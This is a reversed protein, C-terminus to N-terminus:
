EHGSYLELAEKYAFRKGNLYGIHYDWSVNYESGEHDYTNLILDVVHISELIKKEFEDFTKLKEDSNESSNAIFSASISLCLFFTKM